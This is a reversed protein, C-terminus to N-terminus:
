EASEEKSQQFKVWEKEGEESHTENEAAAADLPKGDFGKLPEKGEWAM